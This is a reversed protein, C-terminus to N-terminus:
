ESDYEGKKIARLYAGLVFQSGEVNKYLMHMQQNDDYLRLQSKLIVDEAELEALLTETDIEYAEAMIVLYSDVISLAGEWFALNMPYKETDMGEITDKIWKTDINLHRLLGEQDLNSM